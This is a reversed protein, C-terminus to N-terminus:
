PIETLKRGVQVYSLGIIQVQDFNRAAANANQYNMEEIQNAFGNHPTYSPADLAKKSM